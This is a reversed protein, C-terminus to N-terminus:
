MLIGEYNIPLGVAGLFGVYSFANQRRKTMYADIAISERIMRLDQISEIESVKQADVFPIGAYRAM